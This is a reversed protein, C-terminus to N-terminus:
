SFHFSSIPSIPVQLPLADMDARLAFTPQAGSGISAVVGTKAVPWQYGIELSDLEARILQSTKHEEFGLEPHQHIKRRVGKMWEFFERERASELLERSLGEEMEIGSGGTGCLLPWLLLVSLWMLEM